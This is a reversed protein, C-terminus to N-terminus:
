DDSQNVAMIEGEAALEDGVYVHGRFKYARGRLRIKQVHIRMQDGPVVPRRFRVNDATMFYIKDAIIPEGKLKANQMVLIASVQAIAEIILVGPFVPQEPFHGTFWPESYTVNKIGVATEEGQMEEVRDVLLFPYRHPLFDLIEQINVSTGPLSDTM